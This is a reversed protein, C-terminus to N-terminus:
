KALKSKRAPTGTPTGSSSSSMSSSVSSSKASFSSSTGTETSCLILTSSSINEFYISLNVLKFYKANRFAWKLSKSNQWTLQCHVDKESLPYTLLSHRTDNFKISSCNIQWPCDAARSTQAHELLNLGSNLFQIVHLYCNHSAVHFPHKM